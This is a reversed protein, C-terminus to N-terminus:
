KRDILTALMRGMNDAVCEPLLYGIANTIASAYFPLMRTRLEALEAFDM